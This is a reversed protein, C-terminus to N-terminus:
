AVLNRKITRCTPNPLDLSLSTFTRPKRSQRPLLRDCDKFSGQPEKKSAEQCRYFDILCIRNKIQAFCKLEESNELEQTLRPLRQAIYKPSPNQSVGRSLSTQIAWVEQEQIVKPFAMTVDDQGGFKKVLTKLGEVDRTLLKKKSKRSKRPKKGHPNTSKGSQSNERTRKENRDAKSRLAAKKSDVGQAWITNLLLLHISEPSSRQLLRLDIHTLHPLQTM